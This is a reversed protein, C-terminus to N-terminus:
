LGAGKPPKAERIATERKGFPDKERRKFVNPDSKMYMLTMVAEKMAPSMRQEVKYSPKPPPQPPRQQQRCGSLLFLLPAM